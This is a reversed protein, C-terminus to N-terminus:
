KGGASGVVGEVLYNMSELVPDTQIESKGAEIVTKGTNDKLPGKFIVLEGKMASSKAADALGKTEPSVAPGYPSLKVIGDKLGGRVLHTLEKGARMNNVYDIFVKGWNWESGTLYGKPALAAGNAHYGCCFVGRGPM